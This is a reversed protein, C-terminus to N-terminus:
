SPMFFVACVPSVWCPLRWTRSMERGWSYSHKCIVFQACVLFRSLRSLDVEWGLPTSEGTIRFCENLLLEFWSGSAVAGGRAGNGRLRSLAAAGPSGPFGRPSGTARRWLCPTIRLFVTLHQLTVGKILNVMKAVSLGYHKDMAQFVWLGHYQFSPWGEPRKTVMLGPGWQDRGKADSLSEKKSPSLFCSHPIQSHSKLPWQLCVFAKSHDCLTRPAISEKTQPLLVLQSSLSFLSAVPVPMSTEKPWIKLLNAFLQKWSDRWSM